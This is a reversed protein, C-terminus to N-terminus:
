IIIQDSVKKTSVKPLYGGGIGAVARRLDSNHGIGTKASHVRAVPSPINGSRNETERKFEERRTEISYIPDDRDEENANQARL